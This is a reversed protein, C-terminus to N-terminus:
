RSLLRITKKVLGDPGELSLTALYMGAPLPESLIYQNHGAPQWQDLLTGIRHGQLSHIELRVRGAAPLHWAFTTSGRFPNPFCELLLASAVDPSQNGLGSLAVVRTGLVVHPIPHYSGDALENMPDHALLIRLPEEGATKPAQLQLILLTEGPSFHLPTTSFWSIRLINEKLAYKVTGAQAGPISVDRVLLGPDPLELILSIAGTTLAKETFVPLDFDSGPSVVMHGEHLLALNEPLANKDVPADDALTWSHNFDGAVMGYFDKSLPTSAPPVTLTITRFDPSVPTVPNQAITEGAPWFVWVLPSGNDAGWNDPPAEHLFYQQILTVDNSILRNDANGDGALFRVKETEYEQSIWANVQAADTTNISNRVPPAKALSVTFPETGPQVNEFFYYGANAITEHIETENRLLRVSVQELPLPADTGKFYRINGSLSIADPQTLTYNASAICGHADTVTIFYTGAGLGEIDKETSSFDDPGTWAYLYAPTGGTVALAISGDQAGHWSIHYDHPYLFPTGEILLQEPQSVTHQGLSAQCTPHAADRIWVTYNGAALNSFTHPSAASVVFWDTTNLSVEWTGYGGLPNSITISGDSYGHCSAPAPSVGATLAEPVMLAIQDHTFPYWYTIYDSEQPPNGPIQLQDDAKVVRLRAMNEFTMTYSAPALGTVSFQWTDFEESFESLLSLPEGTVESLFFSSLGTLSVAAPLMPGGSRSWYLNAGEEFPMNLTIRIDTLIEGGPSINKIAPYAISYQFDVAADHCPANAQGPLNATAPNFAIGFSTSALIAYCGGPVFNELFTVMSATVTVDELGDFAIQYRYQANQYSSLPQPQQGTIESFLLHTRGGPNSIDVPYVITTGGSIMRFERVAAGGPLPASFQLLGDYLIEPGAGADQTPHNVVVELILPTATVTLIEAIPPISTTAAITGKLFTVEVADSDTCIGNTETWTFTYTGAHEVTVTAQPDNVDSFVPIGPGSGSWEGTGASPTAQLKYHSADCVIADVGAHANPAEQLGLSITFTESTCGESSRVMGEFHYQGEPLDGFLRFPLDGQQLFDRTYGDVLHLGSEDRFIYFSPQQGSIIGWQHVAWPETAGAHVGENEWYTFFEQPASGPELYFPNYHQEQITKDNELLLASLGFFYLNHNPNICQIFGTELDGTVTAADEMTETLSWTLTAATVEPKFNGHVAGNIYYEDHPQDCFDAYEPYGSSYQNWQPDFHNFSLQATAEGQYTFVLTALTAGDPLTAADEAFWSIKIRSNNVVQFSMPALDVLTPHGTFELPTLVEPDFDISLSIAGVNQFSTVTVPVEVTSGDCANPISGIITVPGDVCNKNGVQFDSFSTLGTVAVSGPSSAGTAPYTWQTGNFRAMRAELYSFGPEAENGNWFFAADASFAELGQLTQVTWYRSVRQGAAFLTQHTQPHNTPTTTALVEGPLTGEQFSLTLPAYHQDGLPFSYHQAGAAITRALNGHVYAQLGGGSVGGDPNNLKLTNDGTTIIGEQLILADNVELDLTLSLGHPNNLSLTSVRHPLGDGTEQPSNGSYHYHAAESLLRAGSNQINGTQSNASIGAPAGLEV